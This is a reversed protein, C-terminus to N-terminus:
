SRPGDNSGATRNMLGSFFNQLQETDYEKTMNTVPSEEESEDPGSSAVRANRDQWSTLWM